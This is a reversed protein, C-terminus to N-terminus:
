YENWNNKKPIKLDQLVQAKVRLVFSYGAAYGFPVWQISMEWCHLDRYISLQATPFQNHVFDYTTSATIKWNKTLNLGANISLTQTYTLTDNGASVNRKQLALSYGFSVNWPVNFSVYENMSSTLYQSQQPTLKLEKSKPSNLSANIGVVATTLRALRHNVDWEFQNLRRGTSDAIYPDFNSNFTLDVKDFLRTRGNLSIISFNLTDVAFNYSANLNLADLLKIKKTQSITDKKSFVKMELNNGLNVNIGGFEGAPPGGYIAGNFISYPIVTGNVDTQVSHFTNWQPKSFDPRYSYSISPNFVHRIAKIKGERFKVIGYIRTLASIAFNFERTDAFGGVTDINVQELEPDWNRRYTQLSWTETYNFSPTMTIFKFLQFPASVPIQQQIGTRFSTLSTLSSTSSFLLSDISSLNNNVNLTYNLGIKEYWRQSGVQEKRRFPYVQSM